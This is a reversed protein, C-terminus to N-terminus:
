NHPCVVPHQFIHVVNATVIRPMVRTLSYTERKVGIMQIGKTGLQRIEQIEIKMTQVM